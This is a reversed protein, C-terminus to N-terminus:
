YTSSSPMRTWFSAWQNRVKLNGAVVAVTPDAFPGILHQLLDRDFSTDVDLYVVFEGTAMRTGLNM